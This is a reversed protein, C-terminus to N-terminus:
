PPLNQVYIKRFTTVQPEFHCEQAYLEMKTNTSYYTEESFSFWYSYIQEDILLYASIYIYIMNYYISEYSKPFQSHQLYMYLTIISTTAEMPSDVKREALRTM